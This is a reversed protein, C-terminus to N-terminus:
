LRSFEQLFLFLVSAPRHNEQTKCHYNSEARHRRQLQVALCHGVLHLHKVALVFHMRMRFVAVLLIFVSARNPFTHAAIRIIHNMHVIVPAETRVPLQGASQLLLFGMFMCLFAIHLLSDQYAAMVVCSTAPLCPFRIGIRFAYVASCSQFICFVCPLSDRFYRFCDHRRLSINLAPFNDAPRISMCVAFCTVPFHKDATIPLLMGVVPVANGLFQDALQALMRVRFRTIVCLSICGAAHFFVRMYGFATLLCIDASFLRMDMFVAAICLRQDTRCIFVFM